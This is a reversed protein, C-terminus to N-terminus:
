LVAFHCGTAIHVSHRSDYYTLLYTLLYIFDKLTRLTSWFGFRLCEHSVCMCKDDEKIVGFNIAACLVRFM